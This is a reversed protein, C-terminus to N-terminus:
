TTAMKVRSRDGLVKIAFLRRLCRGAATLSQPSPERIMRHKREVCANPEDLSRLEDLVFAWSQLAFREAACKGAAMSGDDGGGGTSSM